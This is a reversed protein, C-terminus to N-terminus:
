FPAGRKRREVQPPAQTTNGIRAYMSLKERATGENCLKQAESRLQLDRKIVATLVRCPAVAFALAPRCSQSRDLLLTHSANGPDRRRAASDPIHDIPLPKLINVCSHRDGTHM